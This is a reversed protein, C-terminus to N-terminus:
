AIGGLDLLLPRAFRVRDGDLEIARWDPAAHNACGDHRPLQGSAVLWPAISPDFVGNSAAAFECVAALVRAMDDSLPVWDRAASRNIQSLESAADHFGMAAHISAVRTFARDISAPLAGQDSGSAAIDVLTGLWPQARQMTTM